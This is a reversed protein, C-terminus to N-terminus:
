IPVVFPFPLTKIVHALSSFDWSTPRYWSQECSYSTSFDIVGLIWIILLSEKAIFVVTPTSSQTTNYDFNSPLSHYAM